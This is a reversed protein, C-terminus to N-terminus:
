REEISKKLLKKAMAIDMYAEKELKEINKSIENDSSSNQSSGISSDIFFSSSVKMHQQKVQKQQISELETEVKKLNSQAVKLDNHM